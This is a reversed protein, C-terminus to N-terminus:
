ASIRKQNGSKSSYGSVPEKKVRKTKEIDITSRSLIYVGGVRTFQLIWIFVSSFVHLIPPHLSPNEPDLVGKSWYEV